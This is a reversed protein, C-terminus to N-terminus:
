SGFISNEIPSSVSAISEKEIGIAKKLNEEQKRSESLASLQAALERKHVMEASDASAKVQEYKSIWQKKELILLGMHHQYDYIQMLRCICIFYRHKELMFPLM